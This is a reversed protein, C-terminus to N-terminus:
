LPSRPLDGGSLVERLALAAVEPPVENICMGTGVEFGAPTTVRPTVQAFWRHVERGRQWKPSSHIVLHYAPDTLLQRLRLLVDRLITAFLATHNDPLDGFTSTHERPILWLSYPLPSAWPALAVFEDNTAVIREGAALEEELLVDFMPRGTEQTYSAQREIMTKVAPPIVASAIIQFHPHEISAGLGPGHNKFICVHKVDRAQMMMRHRHRLAQVILTAQEDDQLAFHRDHAPSEIVVEHMGIGPTAVRLASPETATATETAEAESATEGGRHCRRRPPSSSPSVGTSRKQSLGTAAAREVTETDPGTKRSTISEPTPVGEADIRLAPYKNPVVRVRWGERDVTGYDDRVAYVEPTTQRENGPCFPCDKVYEAPRSRPREASLEQPRKAREPAIIVWEGTLPNQRFAPM